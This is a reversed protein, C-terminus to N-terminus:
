KLFKRGAADYCVDESLDFDSFCGYCKGKCDYYFSNCSQGATEPSFIMMNGVMYGNNSDGKYCSVSVNEDDTHAPTVPMAVAALVLVTCTVTRIRRLKNCPRVIEM